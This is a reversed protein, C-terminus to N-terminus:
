GNEQRQVASWASYLGVDDTLALFQRGKDTVAWKSHTGMFPVERKSILGAALATRRASIFCGHSIDEVETFYFTLEAGFLEGKLDLYKIMDCITRLTQATPERPPKSM